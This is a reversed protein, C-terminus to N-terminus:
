IGEHALTHLLLQIGQPTELHKESLSPQDNAEQYLEIAEKLAGFLYYRSLRNSSHNRRAHGGISPSLGQVISDWKGKGEGSFARALKSMELQFNESRTIPWDKTGELFSDYFKQFPENEKQAPAKRGFKLAILNPKIEVGSLKSVM